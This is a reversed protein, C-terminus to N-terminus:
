DRKIYWPFLKKNFTKLIFDILFALVVIWLVYGFIVDMSMYRRVLFIRYGLGQTASIAEAAILLLWVTGNVVRISEIISPLSKPLIIKYALEFNSFGLTRAKVLEEKPTSIVENYIMLTIVPFIGISILAIKSIFGVGFMILLIPLIALPPVNALFNIFYYFIARFIPFLGMVLGFLSGLFASISISVLYIKMSAITDTFLKLEGTRRDAVTAYEWFTEGIKFISPFLKDFENELHRLHSYYEYWGLIAVFLILSFLIYIKLSLEKFPNM